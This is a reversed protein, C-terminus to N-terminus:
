MLTIHMTSVFSAYQDADYDKVFPHNNLLYVGLCLSWKGKLKLKTYKGEEHYYWNNAEPVAVDEAEKYSATKVLWREDPNLHPFIASTFEVVYVQKQM